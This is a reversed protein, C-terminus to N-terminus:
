RLKKLRLDVQEKMTALACRFVDVPLKEELQTDVRMVTAGLKKYYANSPACQFNYVVVENKGLTSYYRLLQSLLKLSLGTGRKTPSVWLGNLEIGNAADETEAFSAFAVALLENAADFIGLGTRVDDHEIGTHMWNFWFDYEEQWHLTKKSQGALEEPWCELKLDIVKGMDEDRIERMVFM